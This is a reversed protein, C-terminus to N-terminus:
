LKMYQAYGGWCDIGLMNLPEGPRHLHLSVAVRDGLKRNTVGDGRLVVTGVPDVGPVHPLTVPRPYKGARVICDLTRNVSVSAVEVLVEGPGPEPTPVDELKM